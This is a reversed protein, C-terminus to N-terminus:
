EVADHVAGILGVVRDIARNSLARNHSDASETGPVDMMPRLLPLMEVLATTIGPLTVRAKRISRRLVLVGDFNGEVVATKLRRIKVPHIVRAVPM